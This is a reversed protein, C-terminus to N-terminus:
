SSNDGGANDDGRKSRRDAAKGKSEQVQRGGRSGRRTPRSGNARPTPSAAPAGPYPALRVPAHTTRVPGAQSRVAASPVAQSTHSTSSSPGAQASQQSRRSRSRSVRVPVTLLTPNSQQAPGSATFQQDRRPTAPTPPTLVLLPLTSAGRAAAGVGADAVIGVNSETEVVRRKTRREGGEAGDDGRKRKTCTTQSSGAGTPRARSLNPAPRSARPLPSPTPPPALDRANVSPTRPPTQPPLAPTPAAPVLQLVNAAPPPVVPATSISVSTPEPPFPFRSGDEWFVFTTSDTRRLPQQRRPMRIASRADGPAPVAHSVTQPPQSANDNNAAAPVVVADSDGPANVRGNLALLRAAALGSAAIAAAVFHTLAETPFM